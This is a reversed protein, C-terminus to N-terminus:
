TFRTQGRQKTARPAYLELGKLFRLESIFTIDDPKWGSSVSLRLVDIKERIMFDRVTDNWASVLLLTKGRGWESDVIKFDNM